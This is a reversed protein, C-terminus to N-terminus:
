QRNFVNSKNYKKTDNNEHYHIVLFDLTCKKKIIEYGYKKRLYDFVIKPDYNEGSVQIKKNVSSDLVIIDDMFNCYQGLEAFGSEEKESELSITDALKPPSSIVWAMTDIKVTDLSFDFKFQLQDLMLDAVRQNFITRMRVEILSNSDRFLYHKLQGNELTRSRPSRKLERVIEKLSGRSFFHDWDVDGGGGKKANQLVKITSEFITTEQSYRQCFVPNEITSILYLFLFILYKM